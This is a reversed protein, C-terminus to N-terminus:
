LKIAAEMKLCLKVSMVKYSSGDESMNCVDPMCMGRHAWRHVYSVCVCVCMCVCKIVGLCVWVCM